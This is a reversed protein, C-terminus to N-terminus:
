DDDSEPEPPVVSWRLSLDEDDYITGHSARKVGTAIVPLKKVVRLELDLNEAMREARNYNLAMGRIRDFDDGDLRYWVMYCNIM